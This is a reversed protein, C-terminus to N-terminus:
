HGESASNSTHNDTSSLDNIYYRFGFTVKLKLISEGEWALATDSISTPLAEICQAQYAVTGTANYCKITITGWVDEAYGVDFMTNQGGHGGLTRYNGGMDDFWKEFFLKEKWDESLYVTTELESFQTGLPAHFPLGYYYGEEIRARRGPLIVSDTRYILTSLDSNQSSATSSSRAILVDFYSSKAVAGQNIRSIFDTISFM